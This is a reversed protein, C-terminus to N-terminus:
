DRVSNVTDQRVASSSGLFLIDLANVLM